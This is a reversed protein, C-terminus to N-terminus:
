ERAQTLVGLKTGQRLRLFLLREGQRQPKPSGGLNDEKGM